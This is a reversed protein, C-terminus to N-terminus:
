ACMQYYEYSKRYNDWISELLSQVEKEYTSNQQLYTVEKEKLENIRSFDVGDCLVSITEYSSMSLLCDSLERELRMASENLKSSESLKQRFVEVLERTKDSVGFPLTENSYLFDRYMIKNNEAVIIRLKTIANECKEKRRALKGFVAGQYVVALFENFINKMDDIFEESIPKEQILEGTIIHSKSTLVKGIETLKEAIEAFKGKLRSRESLLERYKHENTWIRINAQERKLYDNAIELMLTNELEKHLVKIKQIESIHNDVKQTLTGPLVCRLKTEQEETLQKKLIKKVIGPIEMSIISGYLRSIEEHIEDLVKSNEDLLRKREEVVDLDKGLIEFREKTSAKWNVYSDSGEFVLGVSIDDGSIEVLGSQMNIIFEEFSTSAQLTKLLFMELHMPSQFYDFAGDSAAFVITNEHSLQYISENIVFDSSLSVYQSMQGSEVINTFPDLKEDALDDKSIQILGKKCDLVYVRSDGCWFAHLWNNDIYGLALTTPFIKFMSSSVGMCVKKYKKRAYNFGKMIANKISDSSLENHPITQVAEIVTNAGIYASTYIEGTEIDRYQEPGRGGLGDAVAVINNMVYPHADEGHVKGRSLKESFVFGTKM